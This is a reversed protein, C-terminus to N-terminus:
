VRVQFISYMAALGPSVRRSRGMVALNELVRGAPAFEFAHAADLGFIVHGHDEM